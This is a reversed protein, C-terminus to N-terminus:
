WEVQAAGVALVAGAIMMGLGLWVDGLGITSAGAWILGGAAFSLAVTVRVSRWDIPPRSAGPRSTMVKM